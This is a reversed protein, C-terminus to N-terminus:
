EDDDQAARIRELRVQRDAVLRKIQESRHQAQQRAVLEGQAYRFYQVLPIKSPCVFSCSGCNICDKLGYGAAAELQGGKIRAAMELPMLGVPCASVCRACRICPGAEAKEPTGAFALIGCTGKVLPLNAHPLADGMMPGGMVLRGHDEAQWGCHRLLESLLTGIPAQINAPRPVASGSVTVVRSVLPRGLRLAQHVAYATAVNHVLVGVDTARGGAPVELGTLYRLMQKDWGMPYGTPVLRVHINGFPAAAERMAQYAEPKNDEIGVLAQPCQLGHLIIRIGDVINDAREQMLRDDCTLYPECEGGNVLLTHLSSRRGLNLKVQSPFAAGGMGVVGAAGVRQAIEEPSLGFPDPPAQRDAWRDLGDSELILTPTPLASPHPAPWETIAVVTGSTPAHVPASVNGQSYALLQGKRVNDGVCVSPEAPQGIHQQLPVYLKAPLPLDTVIPKGATLSKHGDPHVGGRIRERELLKGLASLNLM